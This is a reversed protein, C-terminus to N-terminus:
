PTLYHVQNELGTVKGELDRIYRVIISEVAEDSDYGEPMGSCCEEIFADYSERSIPFDPDKAPIQEALRMWSNARDIYRAAEERDKPDLKREASAAASLAEAAYELAQAKTIAM